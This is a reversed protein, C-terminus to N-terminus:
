KGKIMSYYLLTLFDVQVHGIEGRLGCRKRVRLVKFEELKYQVLVDGTKIGCMQVNPRVSGPKGSFAM